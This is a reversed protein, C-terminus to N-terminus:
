EAPTRPCSFASVEVVPSSEPQRPNGPGLGSRSTSCDGEKPGPPGIITQDNANARCPLLIVHVQGLLLFFSLCPFPSHFVGVCSNGLCSLFLLHFCSGYVIKACFKAAFTCRPYKFAAAFRCFITTWPKELNKKELDICAAHISTSFGVAISAEILM